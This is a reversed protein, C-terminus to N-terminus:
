GLDSLGEGPFWRVPEQGYERRTGETEQTVGTSGQAARSPVGRRKTIQTYFAVKEIAATNEETPRVVGLHYCCKCKSVCMNSRSMTVIADLTGVQGARDREQCTFLACHGWSPGQARCRKEM